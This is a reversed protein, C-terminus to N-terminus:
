FILKLSAWWRNIKNELWYWKRKYHRTGLTRYNKLSLSDKTTWLTQLILGRKMKAPPRPHLHVIMMDTKIAWLSNTPSLYITLIIQAMMMMLLDEGKKNSTQFLSLQHQITHKNTIERWQCSLKPSRKHSMLQLNTQTLRFQPKPQSPQAQHSLQARSLWSRRFTQLVKNLNRM